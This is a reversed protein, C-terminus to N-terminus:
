LGFKKRLFLQVEDVVWQAKATSDMANFTQKITEIRAAMLPVLLDLGDIADGLLKKPTPVLNKLWTWM